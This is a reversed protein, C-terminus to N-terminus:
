KTRTKWCVLCKFVFKLISQNKQNHFSKISDWTLFFLMSPHYSSMREFFTYVFEERKKVISEVGFFQIAKPNNLKTFFHVITKLNTYNYELEDSCLKSIFHSNQYESLLGIQEFFLKLSDNHHKIQIEVKASSEQQEHYRYKLLVENLNALQTVQAMRWWMDFDEAPQLEKKYFLQHIELVSKRIML